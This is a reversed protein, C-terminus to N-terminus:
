THPLLKESSHTTGDDYEDCQHASGLVEAFGGTSSTKSLYHFVRYDYNKMLKGFGGAGPKKRPKRLANVLTILLGLTISFVWSSLIFSCDCLYALCSCLKPNCKFCIANFRWAM